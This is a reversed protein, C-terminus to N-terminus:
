SKVFVICGNDLGSLTVRAETGKAVVALPKWGGACESALWECAADLANTEKGGPFTQPKRIKV